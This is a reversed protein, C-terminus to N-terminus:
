DEWTDSPRSVALIEYACKSPILYKPMGPEADFRAPIRIACEQAIEYCEEEM